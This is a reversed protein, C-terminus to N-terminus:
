ANGEPKKDPASAPASSQTGPATNDAAPTPSTSPGSPSMLEDLTGDPDITKKIHGKVDMAARTKDVAERLESLESERVFDDVGSKFEGVMRRMKGIGGAVARIVKPLDKPGVVLLTVVAIVLM